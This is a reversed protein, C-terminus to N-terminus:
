KELVRWRRGKPKDKDGGFEFDLSDRRKALDGVTVHGWTWCDADRPNHKRMLKCHAKMFEILARKYDATLKLPQKDYTASM